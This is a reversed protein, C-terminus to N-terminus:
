EDGERPPPNSYRWRLRALRLLHRFPFGTGPLIVPGGQEQAIYISPCPGGPRVLKSDSVTFHPWTDRHVFVRFHSRQSPVSDITFSLSAREYSVANWMLLWCNDPLLLFRTKHGLHPKLGLSTQRSVAPRLPSKSRVHKDYM